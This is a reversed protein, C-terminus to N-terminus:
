PLVLAVKRLMMLPLLMDKRIAKLLERQRSAEVELHIDPAKGFIRGTLMKQIESGGFEPKTEGIVYIMDGATKFHQTTIHDLDKILGVMGVIPTPYIAAGKTENYLSVNGSIVPSNLHDVHM